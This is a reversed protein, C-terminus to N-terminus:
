KGTTGGWLGFLEEDAMATELCERHVLCVECLEKAKAYTGDDRGRVFM